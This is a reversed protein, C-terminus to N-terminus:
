APYVAKPLVKLRRARRHRRNFFRRAKRKERILAANYGRDGSNDASGHWLPRPAQLRRRAKVM